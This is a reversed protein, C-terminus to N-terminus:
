FRVIKKEGDRATAPKQPQLIEDFPQFFLELMSPPEADPRTVDVQKLGDQVSQRAQDASIQLLKNLSQAADRADSVADITPDALDKVGVADVVSVGLVQTTRSPNKDSPWIMVALFMVAAAAPLGGVVALRQWRWSRDRRPQAVSIPRIPRSQAMAGVVRSAFGSELMPESRDKSVVNSTARMIEVERQCAPCQLLHAHVEATMSASLEDDIFQHHLNQVQRCTLM